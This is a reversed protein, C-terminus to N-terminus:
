IAAVLTTKFTFTACCWWNVTFFEYTHDTFLLFERKNSVVVVFLAIIYNRFTANKARKADSSNSNNNLVKEHRNPWIVILEVWKVESFSRFHFRPIGERVEKKKLRWKKLMGILMFMSISQFVKLKVNIRM